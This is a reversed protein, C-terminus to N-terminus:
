LREFSIPLSLMTNTDIVLPADAEDPSVAVRIINFNRVIM